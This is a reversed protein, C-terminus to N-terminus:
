LTLIVGSKPNTLLFNCKKAFGGKAACHVRLTSDRCPLIESLFNEFNKQEVKQVKCFTPFFDGCPPPRNGCAVCFPPMAASLLRSAAFIQQSLLLFLAALLRRFSKIKNTRLRWQPSSFQPKCFRSTRQLSFSNDSKANHLFYGFLVRSETRRGRNLARDSFIIASNESPM